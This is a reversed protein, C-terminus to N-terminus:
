VEVETLPLYEQIHQFSVDEMVRLRNNIWYKHKSGVTVTIRSEPNDKVTKEVIDCYQQNWDDLMRGLEPFLRSYFRGHIIETWTDYAQCLFDFLNRSYIEGMSERLEKWFEWKRSLAPDKKIREIENQVKREYERWSDLKQQLSVMPIGHKRAYPIIALPYEPKEDCASEDELQEDSFETCLIDPNTKGILCSLVDLSYM